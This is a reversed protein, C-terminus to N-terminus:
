TFCFPNIPEQFIYLESLNLTRSMHLMHYMIWVEWKIPGGSTPSAWFHYTQFISAYQNLLQGAFSIWLILNWTQIMLRREGYLLVAQCFFSTCISMPRSIKYFLDRTNSWPLKYNWFIILTQIRSVEYLSFFSGPIENNLIEM